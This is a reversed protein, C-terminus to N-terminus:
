VILCFLSKRRCTISCWYPSSADTNFYGEGQIALENEGNLLNCRIAQLDDTNYADDNMESNLVKM